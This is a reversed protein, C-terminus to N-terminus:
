GLLVNEAAAGNSAVLKEILKAKKTPKSEETAQHFLRALAPSPAKKWQAQIVALAKDPKHSEVYLRSCLEAAKVDGPLAKVAAQALVLAHEKNGNTYSNEAQRLSIKGKATSFDARSFAGTKRAHRAHAEAEQFHGGNVHLDFVAWAGQAEKPNVRHAREAFSLAQPLMQQKQAADSLSKAALYETEPHDLLQELLVRTEADDGENKSIQARLM